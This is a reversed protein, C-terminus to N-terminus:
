VPGIGLAPTAATATVLWDNVNGRTVGIRRYAVTHDGIRSVGQRDAQATLSQYRTDNPVGLRAGVRQPVGNDIVVRGTQGDVVRLHADKDAGMARRFSEVTVEFHVIAK